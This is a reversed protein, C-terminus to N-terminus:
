QPAIRRAIAVDDDVLRREGPPSPSSPRYRDVRDIRADSEALCSKL